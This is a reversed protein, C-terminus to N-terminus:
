PLDSVFILISPSISFGTLVNKEVSYGKSSVPTPPTSRVMRDISTALTM